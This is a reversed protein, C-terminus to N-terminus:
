RKKVNSMGKPCEMYIEEERNRYLFVTEINVIKASYGFHLVMLLLICFTIDNVVPSYNKSFNVDPIQSYGCAMLCVWYVSNCKIKFVWKNKCVQADSKNSTRTPSSKTFQKKGSRALAKTPITGLKRSPKPNKMYQRPSM